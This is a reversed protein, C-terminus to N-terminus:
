IRKFSIKANQNKILIFLSFIVIGIGFIIHKLQHLENVPELTLEHGHALFAILFGIFLLFIGFWYVIQKM